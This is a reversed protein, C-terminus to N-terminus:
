LTTGISSSMCAALSWEWDPKYVTVTVVAMCHSAQSGM